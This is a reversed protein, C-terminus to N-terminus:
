VHARGIETMGEAMGATGLRFDQSGVRPPTTAVMAPIVGSGNDDGKGILAPNSALESRLTPRDFPFTESAVRPDTLGTALFETIIGVDGFPMNVAAMFPDVNEPFFPAAFYFAVAQQLTTHTGAHMFTKKLGVNRLSSTKFKGRDAFLGTVQQRGSDYEIPRIGINRFQNDTFLPPTHCIDCRARTFADFGSKQDRTMADLDGLNFSDWPSQDSILTREYTAIAFAIRRATIAPDGFAEAFLEPYSPSAQIAAAQDATLNVALALPRAGALKATIQGWDRLEHAMEVDNLPPAVVQSELAGGFEIAVEGTEPDVFQSSARGDWFLEDAYAANITTNASRGTIRRLLEFTADVAFANNEDSRVVGLSGRIDDLTGQVGDIGPHNALRPDAGGASPIHCTGCSMTNDSSLQEDWFLIKGLVRKEESFPNEEPFIVPDLNSLRPQAQAAVGILVASGALLGRVASVAGRMAGM